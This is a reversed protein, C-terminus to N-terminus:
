AYRGWDRLAKQVNFVIMRKLMGRSKLHAIAEALTFNPIKM